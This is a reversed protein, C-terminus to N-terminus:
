EVTLSECFYTYNTVYHELAFWFSRGTNQESDALAIVRPCCDVLIPWAQVGQMVLYLGGSDSSQSQRESAHAYVQSSMVLANGEDSLSKGGISFKSAQTAAIQFSSVGDGAFRM